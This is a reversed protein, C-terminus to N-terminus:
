WKGSEIIKDYLEDRDHNYIYMWAKGYPTDIEERTYFTPYGELGDLRSFTGKDVEYVEGKISTKGNRLVGPFGGLSVMTYIPNTNFDGLYEAKDRLFYEYNGHGEKLTGYVFVKHTISM